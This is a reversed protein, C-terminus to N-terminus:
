QAVVQGTVSKGIAHRASELNVFVKVAETNGHPLEVVQYRILKRNPKTVKQIEYKETRDVLTIMPKETTQAERAKIRAIVQDIIGFAYALSTEDDAWYWIGTM